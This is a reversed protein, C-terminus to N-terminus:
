TKKYIGEKEYLIEFFPGTLPLRERKGIVLYIQLSPM